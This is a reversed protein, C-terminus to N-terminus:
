PLLVVHEEVINPQPVHVHSVVIHGTTHDYLWQVM